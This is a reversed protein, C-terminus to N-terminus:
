YESKECNGVDSGAGTAVDSYGCVEAVKGRSVTTYQYVEPAIVHSTAQLCPGVNASPAGSETNAVIDNSRNLSIWSRRSSDYRLVSGARQSLLIFLRFDDHLIYNIRGFEGTGEAYALRRGLLM